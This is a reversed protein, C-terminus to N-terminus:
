LGISNKLIDIVETSRNRALAFLAVLYCVAGILIYVGLAIVPPLDPLVLKAGIVFAAMALCAGAPGLFVFMYELADVSILRASKIVAFPWRVVTALLLASLLMTLGFRSVTLLIGITVLGAALQYYFWWDTQGRSNILSAQIVGICAMTGLGCYLRIPWVGEAWRGGFIVPVAVDAVMAFGVFLPFSLASSLFTATLFGKKVREMDEQVSSLMPHAVTGLPGAIVGVMIQFINRAFAYIGAQAPGLYLGVITPDAQTTLAQMARTGSSFVGYRALSRLAERRMQFAPVWHAGWMSAATAVISSSLQAVVLAWISYGSVLLLLTVGASVTTALLTRGAILEFSMRRTIIAQPVLGAADSILRLGVVPLLVPIWDSGLIRGLMGGCGVLVGYATLACVFSAWFVSDLHADDIAPRQVIAEAFGSPVLVGALAVLGGAFAVVGYETPGIYRSVVLFVLFGTVLPIASNVSSWFVGRVARVSHSGTGTRRDTMQQYREFRM